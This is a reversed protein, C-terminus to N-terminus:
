KGWSKRGGGEYIYNLWERKDVEMLRNEMYKVMKNLYKLRTYDRYENPLKNVMRNEKDREWKIKFLEEKYEKAGMADERWDRLNNLWRDM